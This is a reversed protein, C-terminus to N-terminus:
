GCGKHIVEAYGTVQRTSTEKKARKRITKTKKKIKRQQYGQPYSTNPNHPEKAKQPKRRARNIVSSIVVLNRV